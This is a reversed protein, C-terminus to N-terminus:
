EGFSFVVGASLEPWTMTDGRFNPFTRGRLDARFGMPGWLNTAKVGGGYNITFFPTHDAVVVQLGTSLAVAGTSPDATYIEGGILAANGRRVLTSLGGIGVTVYPNLQSGFLPGRMFHFVGNVDYILGHVTNVPIGFSQDLTTPALRSEFHNIYGFNGEVQVFDNVATSAKVGFVGEKRLDSNETDGPWFFGANPHIEIRHRGSLLYTGAVIAFPAIIYAATRGKSYGGDSSYGPIGSTSQV